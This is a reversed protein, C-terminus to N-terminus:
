FITLVLKIIYYIIEKTKAVIEGFILTVVGGNKGLLYEYIREALTKEEEKTQEQEIHQEVLEEATVNRDTETKQPTKNGTQESKPPTKAPTQESDSDKQWLAPNVKTGVENKFANKEVDELSFYMEETISKCGSNQCHRSIVGDAEASAVTDVTWEEDYKHGLKEIDEEEIYSCHECGRSRVGKTECSAPIVEQWPLPVHDHNTLTYGVDVGGATFSPTLKDLNRNAFCNALSDGKKEYDIHKITVASIGARAKRKVKFKFGCLAGDGHIDSNGVYVIRVCGLTANTTDQPIIGGVYEVYELTTYDYHLSFSVAAIGPNDKINLALTVTNGPLADITDLKLEFFHEQKAAAVSFMCLMLCLCVAAALIRFAKKM